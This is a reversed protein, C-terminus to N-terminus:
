RNLNEREQQNKLQQQEKRNLQQDSQETPAVDPTDELMDSPVEPMVRNVIAALEDMIGSVPHGQNVKQVMQRIRYVTDADATVVANAGYPDNKLAETVTYKVSGVRSRDLKQNVDIGVIAYRGAVIATADEVDPVSSAIDVLHQAIEQGSKEENTETAGPQKVEVIHDEASEREGGQNQCGAAIITCIIFLVFIRKM